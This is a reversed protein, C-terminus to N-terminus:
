YDAPLEDDELDDDYDPDPMKDLEEAAEKARFAMQAVESDSFDDIDIETGYEDTINLISVKGTLTVDAEIDYQGFDDTFNYNVRM